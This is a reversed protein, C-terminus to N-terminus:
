PRWQGGVGAFLPRRQTGDPLMVHLSPGSNFLVYEGDPSWSPGVDDRPSDGLRLGTLQVPEGGSAGMIFIRWGSGRYESLVIRTGDPSWAATGVSGDRTYNLRSPEKGEVTTVFFGPGEVDSSAFVVREGDPAWSAHGGPRTGPTLNRLGSGDANMVFVDTGGQPQDRNSTFLIRSGDPSWVPARNVSNHNTLNRLGTGDANMVFIDSYGIGENTVRRFAVRTADSSWAADLYWEGDDLLRVPPGSRDAPVAYLEPPRFDYELRYFIRGRIAPLVVLPGEGLVGIRFDTGSPTLGRPHLITLDSTGSQLLELSLEAVGVRGSVGGHAARAELTLRAAEPTQAVLHLGDPAGNSVCGASAACELEAVHAVRLLSPDFELEAAFSAIPYPGVDIEIQLRVTDGKVVAPLAKGAPPVWRYHVLAEPREQPPEVGDGSCAAGFLALVCGLAGRFRLAGSASWFAMHTSRSLLLLPEPIILQKM